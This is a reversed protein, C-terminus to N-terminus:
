GHKEAKKESLKAAMPSDPHQKVDDELVRVVRVLQDRETRAQELIPKLKVLEAKDQESAAQEGVRLPVGYVTLLVKAQSWRPKLTDRLPEAVLRNYDERSIDETRPLDLEILNEPPVGRKQCYYVAVDRSERMNKNFVVFVDR